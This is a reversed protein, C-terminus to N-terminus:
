GSLVRSVFVVCPLASGWALLFRNLGLLYANGLHFLAYLPVLALCIPFSILILPAALELGIVGVALGRLPLQRQLASTQHIRAGVLAPTRLIMGLASGDRWTPERLKVVGAVFYSSVVQVAVFCASAFVITPYASFLRAVFLSLLVTLVMSDSGGNFAGRWRLAVLYSVCLMVALLAASSRFLLCVAAVLGSVLVLEFRGARLGGDLIRRCWQPLFAFDQRITNWRWVGVDSYVSRVALLESLQVIVAVAILKESWWLPDMPGIM